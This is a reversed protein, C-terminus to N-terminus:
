ASLNSGGVGEMAATSIRGEAQQANPHEEASPLAGENSGNPPPVRVNRRRPAGTGAARTALQLQLRQMSKRLEDRMEEIAAQQQAEAKRAAASAKRMEDKMEERMENLDESLGKVKDELLKESSDGEAFKTKEAEDEEAVGEEDIVVRMARETNEAERAVEMAEKSRQAVIADTSRSQEHAVGRLKAGGNLARFYTHVELYEPPVDQGLNMLAKGVVTPDGKSTRGRYKHQGPKPLREAGLARKDVLQAALQTSRYMAIKLAEFRLRSKSAPYVAATADIDAKKICCVECYTLSIGVRRDRLADSRVLVDEGIYQGAAYPKGGRVLTGRVIIIISPETHYIREGKEYAYYVMKTALDRLFDRECEAFFPVSGVIAFSMLGQMEGALQKSFNRYLTGFSRKLELDHTDRLYQRTRHRLETPANMESLFLNLHDMRSQAAKQLPNANARAGSISGVFLTRLVMSIYSILFFLFNESPTGSKGGPNKLLGENYLLSLYIATASDGSFLGEQIRRCVWPEENQVFLLERGTFAALVAVECPLLCEGAYSNTTHNTVRAFADARCSGDLASLLLPTRQSEQLLSLIGWTCCFWHTALLIIFMWMAVARIYTAVVAVESTRELSELIRSFSRSARLLRGLKILRTLRVIRVLRASRVVKLSVGDASEESSSESSSAMAAVIEDLPLTSIFDFVFWTSLYRTAIRRHDRIIGGGKWLPENFPIFFSAVMGVFFVLTVIYNLVVLSVYYDDSLFAIEYPTVIATFMLAVVTSMDLFHMFRSNIDVIWRSSKRVRLRALHVDRQLTEINLSGQAQERERQNFYQDYNTALGAVKIKAQKLQVQYQFSTNSTRTTSGRRNRPERLEDEHGVPSSQEGEGSRSSTTDRDGNAVGRLRSSNPPRDRSPESRPALEDSPERM